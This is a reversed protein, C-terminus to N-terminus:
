IKNKRFHFLCSTSILMYNARVVRMSYGLYLVKGIDLMNHSISSIKIRQLAYVLCDHSSVSYQVAENTMDIAKICHEPSTRSRNTLHCSKKEAEHYVFNVRVVKQYREKSREILVTTTQYM